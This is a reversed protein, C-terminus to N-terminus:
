IKCMAWHGHSIYRLGTIFVCVQSCSFISLYAKRFASILSQPFILVINPKGPPETTFFGGAICSACSIHTWDRSWSSGRSSSIAVWELIRAQIDWLCLLRASYLRHHQWLTPCLKMVLCHCYSQSPVNLCFVTDSINLSVKDLYERM